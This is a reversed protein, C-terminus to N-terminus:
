ELVELGEIGWSGQDGGVDPEFRQKFVFLGPSPVCCPDVDQKSCSLTQSCGAAQSAAGIGAGLSLARLVARM